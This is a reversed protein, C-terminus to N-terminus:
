RALVMESQSCGLRQVGIKLNWQWVLEGDRILEYWNRIPVWSEVVHTELWIVVNKVVCHFHVVRVHEVCLYIRTLPSGAPIFISPSRQHLNPTPRTTHPPSLRATPAPPQVSLPRKNARM